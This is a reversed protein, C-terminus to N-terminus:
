HASPHRPACLCTRCSTCGYYCASLPEGDDAHLPLSARAGEGDHRPDPGSTHDRTPSRARTGCTWLQKAQAARCARCMSSASPIIPESRWRRWRPGDRICSVEDARPFCIM